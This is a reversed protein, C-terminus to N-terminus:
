EKHAWFQIIRAPNGNMTTWDFELAEDVRFGALLGDFWERAHHRLVVGEPLRFRGHGLAEEFEEYRERNRTDTQLPYDSILLLGGPKLIRKFERLLNKQADDAPICTLVAFLLVADISADGCPLTAGDIEVFGADPVEERAVRIMEHSSDIGLVNVYGLGVLEGSLRGQGCGYDLIVADRPLLRTLRERDLPHTFRRNGAARNWFHSDNQAEM